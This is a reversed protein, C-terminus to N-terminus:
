GILGRNMRPIIGWAIERVAGAEDGFATADELPVWSTRQSGQHLVLHRWAMGDARRVISYGGRNPVVSFDSM